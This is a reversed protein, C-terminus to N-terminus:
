FNIKVADKQMYESKGIMFGDLVRSDPTFTAKIILDNDGLYYLKDGRYTDRLYYAAKGYKKQFDDLPIYNNRTEGIVTHCCV